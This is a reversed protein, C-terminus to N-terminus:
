GDGPEGRDPAGAGVADRVEVGIPEGRHIPGSIQRSIAVVVHQRAHAEIVHGIIEAGDAGMPFPARIALM